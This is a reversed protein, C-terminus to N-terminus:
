HPETACYGCEKAQSEQARGCARQLELDERDIIRVCPIVLRVLRVAEPSLSLGGSRRRVGLPRERLPGGAVWRGAM